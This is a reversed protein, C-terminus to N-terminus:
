LIKNLIKMLKLLWKNIVIFILNHNHNVHNMINHIHKYVFKKTNVSVEFINNM